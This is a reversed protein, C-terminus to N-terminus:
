ENGFEMPRFEIKNIALPTPEFKQECMYKLAKASEACAETNQRVLENSAVYIADIKAQAEQSELAQTIRYEMLMEIEDDSMESYSACKELESISRMNQSIITSM